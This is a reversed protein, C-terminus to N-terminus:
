AARRASPYDSYVGAGIALRFMVLRGLEAESFAYTSEPPEIPRETATAGGPWLFRCNFCIAGWHGIRATRQNACRPCNLHLITM